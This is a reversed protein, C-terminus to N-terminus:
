SKVMSEPQSKGDYFFYRENPSAVAALKQVVVESRSLPTESSLTEFNSPWLKMLM